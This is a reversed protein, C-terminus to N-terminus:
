KKAPVYRARCTKRNTWCEERWAQLSAQSPLTFGPSCGQGPYRGCVACGLFKCMFKCNNQSVLCGSQDLNDEVSVLCAEFVCRPFSNGRQIGKWRWGKSSRIETGLLPVARSGFSCTLICIKSTTRTRGQPFSATQIVRFWGSQIALLGTHGPQLPHGAQTQSCLPNTICPIPHVWIPVFRLLVLFTDRARGVFFVGVFCCFLVFCYFEEGHEQSHM